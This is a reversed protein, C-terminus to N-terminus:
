MESPDLAHPRLWPALYVDCKAPDGFRKFYEHSIKIAKKRDKPSYDWFEDIVKNVATIRERTGKIPAISPDDAKIQGRLAKFRPKLNAVVDAYAPDDYVNNMEHPDKELDYLEWGPPTPYESRESGFGKTGATGYFLILKYRKTRMAIHGPIDHHAMHMWYQYYAQQKWGPSEKGTDLVERFSRGQMYDPQSVGAYDLMTVPYDVNEVIADTRTGPKISKPYYVILPMRFSPEYAWRKDQMDHEGLFFGQDGTYIIVTNDMLGEAQMYKFLRGLNDDVGKVCRLYKKMYVNYAARKAEKDNLEEDIVWDSDYSRRFNRRGISTGIVRELEGNHGRTAISGEGRDWLSKPEPITIDELYTDYRPANEFYDHPAKFHLKLFFPKKTDRKEKFWELASDTVCDSSHGKMKVQGKKGSEYFVPDFYKGQGPLVKYYDFADPLAKLHWKGVIATQYGAKNMESALYQRDKPLSGNLTLVGNKHGYQGTMISARSPTCIANGCFANEFVMGKAALKDINPTPDLYGFRSNYAGIAQWTHDDSMIFLINPKGPDAKAILSFMLIGSLCILYMKRFQRISM